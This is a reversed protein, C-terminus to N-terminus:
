VEKAHSKGDHRVHNTLCAKNHQNAFFEIQVNKTLDM